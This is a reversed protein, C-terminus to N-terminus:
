KGVTDSVKCLMHLLVLFVHSRAARKKAQDRLATLKQVVKLFHVNLSVPSDDLLQTEASLCM